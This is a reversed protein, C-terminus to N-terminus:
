ELQNAKHGCHPVTPRSEIIDTARTAGRAVQSCSVMNRNENMHVGRPAKTASDPRAKAPQWLMPPLDAAVGGWLGQSVAVQPAGAGSGGLFPNRPSHLWSLLLGPKNAM